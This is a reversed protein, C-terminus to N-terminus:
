VSPIGAPHSKKRGPHYIPRRILLNPRFATLLVLPLYLAIMTGGADLYWYQGAILVAASLAILEGLNKDKPWIAVAAVLALYAIIVPLRYSPDIRTWFSPGHPNETDPLLGAASLSRAGLATAWESLVPIRRGILACAVAISAASLGFRLGGNRRYFGIWLPILGLCVPMWGSALGILIGATIPRTYLLVAGAVLAAPVIQGCDVLAIRTYPSLLYCVAVSLGAFTREFHRSGIAILTLVLSLHALGALIRSVIIQPSERKLTNPIPAKAIIQAVPVNLGQSPSKTEGPADSVNRRREQTVTLSVSEGVMLAVMGIAVCTLGAANLNPELLPRRSLGLDLLCRILWLGQTAFLWAFAPWTQSGATAGLLRMLGPAPLFLLVMDLNRVSWPRSFKVFFTWTALLTLLYWVVGTLGLDALANSM